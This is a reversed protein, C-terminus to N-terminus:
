LSRDGCSTYIKAEAASKHVNLGLPLQAKLGALTVDLTTVSM